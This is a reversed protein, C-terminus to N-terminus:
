RASQTRMGQMAECWDSNPKGDYGCSASSTAREESGEASRAVNETRPCAHALPRLQEEMVHHGDDPISTGRDSKLPNHALQQWQALFRPEAHSPACRKLM